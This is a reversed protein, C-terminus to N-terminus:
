PTSATMSHVVIGCVTKLTIMCAVACICLIWMWRKPAHNQSIITIHDFFFFLNLIFPTADIPRVLMNVKTAHTAAVSIGSIIRM